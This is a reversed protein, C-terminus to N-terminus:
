DNPMGNEIWMEIMRLQCETLQSGNQPMQTYGAEWAVSGYLSGNAGAAAIEAHNTLKVDGGANSGTHCGECFAAVLPQIDGSFTLELTDCLLADCSLNLAGQMIWDAILDIQDQPLPNDPPMADDGWTQTISEYIHGANLNGGEIDGTNIINSYSDLVIGEEHSQADHCDDQACNSQFIPLIQQQFYITDESCTISQIPIITTGPIIQQEEPLHKCGIIVLGALFPLLVLIKRKKM